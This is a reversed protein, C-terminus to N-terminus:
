HDIETATCDLVTKNQIKSVHNYVSGNLSTEKYKNNSFMELDKCKYKRNLVSVALPWNCFIVEFAMMKIALEPFLFIIFKSIVEAPPKVNFCLVKSDNKFVFMEWCQQKNWFIGNRFITLNHFIRNSKLHKTWINYNWYINWMYLNTKLQWYLKENSVLCWTM